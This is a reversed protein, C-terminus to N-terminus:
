GKNIQEFIKTVDKPNTADVCFINGRLLDKFPYRIANAVSHYEKNAKEMAEFIESEMDSAGSYQDAHTAIFLIDFKKNDGEVGSLAPKVYCSILSTIYGGEKYNQMEKILTNGNFVFVIIKNKAFADKLFAKDYLYIDKGGIEHITTNSLGLAGFLGGKSVSYDEERTQIPDSYSDGKFSYCLQTKGSNKPGFLLIDAM